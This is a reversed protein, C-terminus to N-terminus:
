WTKVLTSNSADGVEKVGLSYVAVRRGNLKTVKIGNGPTVTLKEDYAEFDGGSGNDLVIFYPGGWPDYLGTIKDGSGDYVVGDRKGNKADKLSLFRIKRENEIDTGEELGALINLLIVGDGVDTKLTGSGSPLSSYESYFQDIATAVSTAAAQATVKRAKELAAAGGAFGAAALVAIIAIVVLLEILTFGKKSHAFSPTKM